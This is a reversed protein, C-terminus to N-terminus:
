DGRERLARVVADAVDDPAGQAANIEADSAARYAPERARLLDDLEEVPNAGTVSPRNADSALTAALRVRLVEAPCRLYVAFAVGVRRAGKLAEGAGPATLTGGGLALVKPTSAGLEEQLARTEAERFAEQGAEAWMAAVSPYGERALVREDLDVFPVGLRRALAAGVASKGSGRMGVLVIVREAVDDM